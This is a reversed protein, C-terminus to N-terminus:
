VPCELYPHLTKVTLKNSIVCGCGMKNVADFRGILITLLSNLMDMPVAVMRDHPIIFSLIGLYKFAETESILFIWSRDCFFLVFFINTEAFWIDFRCYQRIKTISIHSQRWLFYFLSMKWKLPDLWFFVWFTWSM